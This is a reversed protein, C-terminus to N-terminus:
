RLIPIGGNGPMGFRVGFGQFFSNFSPLTPPMRESFVLPPLHFGLLESLLKSREPVSDHIAPVLICRLFPGPNMSFPMYVHNRRRSGRRM